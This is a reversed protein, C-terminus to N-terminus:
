RRRKGLVPTDRFTDRRAEGTRWRSLGNWRPGYGRGARTVGPTILFSDPIEPAYRRELLLRPHRLFGRIRNMVFLGRLPPVL